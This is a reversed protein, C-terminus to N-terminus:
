GLRRPTADFAEMDIVNQQGPAKAAISPVAQQMRERMSRQYATEGSYEKKQYGGLLSKQNRVWTKWTKFWDVKLAKQGSLSQWYDAFDEAVMRPNLDKRNDVVYQLMEVTPEWDNPLRSGKPSRVKQREEAETETSQRKETETETEPLAHQMCSALLNIDGHVVFFFEKDILPKLGVNIDSVDMRLRFALKEPDADIEGTEHESALLWLMPALAKSALPLRQYDFNDLLKKHLKVWPPSRLKYHQFDNWNRPAIVAM